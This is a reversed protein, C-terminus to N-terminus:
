QLVLFHSLKLLRDIKDDIVPIGADNIRLFRTPLFEVATLERNMIEETSKKKMNLIAIYFTYFTAGNKKFKTKTKDSYLGIFGIKQSYLKQYEM